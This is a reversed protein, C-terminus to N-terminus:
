KCGRFVCDNLREAITLDDVSDHVLYYPSRLVMTDLNWYFNAAPLVLLVTHGGFSKHLSLSAKTFIACM